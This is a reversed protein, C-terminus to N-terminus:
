RAVECGRRPVACPVHAPLSASRRAAGAAGRGLLTGAVPVLLLCIAASIAAALRFGQAFADRAVALLGGRLPEALQQAVGVAGGLTATLDMSYVLCPLAIVALGIWERRTARTPAIPRM